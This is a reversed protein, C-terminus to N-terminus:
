KHCFSIERFINIRSVHSIKRFQNHIEYVKKNRSVLFVHSVPFGVDVIGVVMIEYV